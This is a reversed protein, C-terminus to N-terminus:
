VTMQHLSWDHLLDCRLQVCSPSATSKSEAGIAVVKRQLGNRHENLKLAGLTLQTHSLRPSSYLSTSSSSPPQFAEMNWLIDPIRALWRSPINQVTQSCPRNSWMSNHNFTDGTGPPANVTLGTSSIRGTNQWNHRQHTHQRANWQTELELDSLTSCGFNTRLFFFFLLMGQCKKPM